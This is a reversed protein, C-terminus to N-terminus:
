KYFFLIFVYKIFEIKKPYYRFRLHLCYDTNSNFNSVSASQPDTVEIDSSMSSSYISLVNKSSKSSFSAWKELRRENDM